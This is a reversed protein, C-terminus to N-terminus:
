PVTLELPAFGESSLTVKDNAALGPITWTQGADVEHAPINRAKSDAHFYVSLLVKASVSISSGSTNKVSLVYPGDEGDAKAFSTAIPLSPAKDDLSALTSSGAARAAPGQVLALACAAAIAALAAAFTRSRLAIHSPIM